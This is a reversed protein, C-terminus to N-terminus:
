SCKIHWTKVYGISRKKLKKKLATKAKKTGKVTITINKKVGKFANKSITQLKGATVTIKKLNKCGSFAKKGIKTVNSGITVTTLKKNNRFAKDAIGTVKYTIGKVKVTVPITLKKAKKDMIKTVTVTPNKRSSSTVKVKIKKSSINFITGKRAPVATPRVIVTSGPNKGTEPTEEQGPTPTPESSDEQGPAPTPEPTEEQGPTPTPEPTEEQGPTPTPEPTEEQGPTPKPDSADNNKTTFTTPESVPSEKYYGIAGVKKYVTYTTAPTLNRFVNGHQWNVGDLSFMTHPSESEYLCVTATTATVEYMVPADPTEQPIYVVVTKRAKVGSGDAAKATIIYNGFKEATFRGEGDTSLGTSDSSSWEVQKDSADQPMVTATYAAQEGIVLEDPGDITIDTVSVTAKVIQVIKSAKIKGDDASVTVVVIGSALATLMGTQEDISAIESDDVTWRLTSNDANVPTIDALLQVTDGVRVTGEIDKISINTITNTTCFEAPESIESEKYYGNAPVRKYITYTTAPTLNQFVNSSQWNVGDLSYQMFGSEGNIKEIYLSTNTRKSLTAPQPKEYIGYVKITKEATVDPDDLSTATVTYEGCAKAAFTGDGMSLFNYYSSSKWSVQKLTANDPEVVATYQVQDGKMVEDPGDVTIGTASVSDVVEVEIRKEIGLGYIYARIYTNGKQVGTVLYEYNSRRCTAVTTDGIAYSIGYATGEPLIKGTLHYSQGIGVTIKNTVQIEEPILDTENFIVISYTRKVTGDDSSATVTVTGKALAKLMGTHTDISAVDSNNVTWVLESNEANEPIIAAELQLQDGVRMTKETNIITIGTVKNTTTFQTPESCESEKYYGQEATKKYVTYTKGPILDTFKNDNQWNVGDLSYQMSKSETSVKKVTASTNTIDIVEPASPKEYRDYVLIKKKASIESGDLASVTVTYTGIKKATFSGEGNNNLNYSNAKWELQQMTANEPTVGATYTVTDGLMCQDPGDLQIGTVSIPDVVEVEIEKEIDTDYVYAHITTTGKSVGKVARYSEGLVPRCTAIKGDRTYFDPYCEASKPIVKGTLRYTQGVGVTIKDVVDLGTPTPNVKFEFSVTYGGDESTGTIITTGEKLGTIQCNSAGYNTVTAVSEDSSTWAMNHNSSNSPTFNINCASTVTKGVNTNPCHNSMQISELPIKNAYFMNVDYRIPQPIGTIEVTYVDGERYIINEPAFIFCCSSYGADVRMYQYGSDTNNEFQWVKGTNKDTVKIHATTKDVKQPVIVTWAYGTGFFDLPQYQGPYSIAKNEKMNADVYVASYPWDKTSKAIGFGAETYSTDLLQRRHGYNRDGNYETMFCYITSILNKSASSLNSNACGHVAKKYLEDDMGDPQSAIHSINRNVASVFAAVQAYEQAEDTLQVEGVGAIYRISNLYNLASQLSEDSVKGMNYPQTVSPQVAYTDDGDIYPHQKVYNIVEEKTHTDADLDIFSTAAEAKIKGKKVPITGVLTVALAASVIVALTKRWLKRM